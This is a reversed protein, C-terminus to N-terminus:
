EIYDDYVLIRGQPLPEASGREFFKLILEERGCEKSFERLEEVTNIEIVNSDAPKRSAWEVSFKM